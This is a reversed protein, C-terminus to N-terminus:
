ASFCQLGGDVRLVQGSVFRSGDSALFVVADAVEDPLGYRVLTHAAERMNPDTPRTALFRATQTPGPSIANVRVGHPRLDRALCRTYEVIGAKAVAYGVGETVGEHAAVSAFNIVTGRKRERMAPCFARCVLMTGVLNRNLLAHIDAIPIGLADNPKPKGGAAAIDGGACNVLIDVPGFTKTVSAAMAEVANYDSIDGTVALTRGGHEKLKVAVADLSEAEGFEAPASQDIDHVAVDAGLMALRVAISYGLGRGSGTIFAVQGALPKDM